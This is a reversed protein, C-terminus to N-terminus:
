NGPCMMCQALQHPKFRTVGPKCQDLGVPCDASFSILRTLDENKSILDKLTAELVSENGVNGLAELGAEVERRLLKAEEEKGIAAKIEALGATAAVKEISYQHNAALKIAKRYCKEAFRFRNLGIRLYFDGIIRYVGPNQSGDIVLKKLTKIADDDRENTIYLVTLALAKTEEALEMQSIIDVANQLKNDM